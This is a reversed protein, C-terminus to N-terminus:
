GKVSGALMGRIFYRQLSFFVIMPVIMTIFAAAFRLEFDAGRAGVLNVLAVTVPEGTSSLFVSAILFDNWTWLVQFIGFAALAPTSLPIVLRWFITFHDAGDLRASEFIDKPLNAIFNHLLFIALPLGFGTHTLWVTIPEASLGLDPFVRITWDTFPITWSAGRNFLQLLPVFAMQNPLAMLSVVGIFFWSKGKFDMWAFAYAAFAAIAIPVITAPVVIAISNLFNTSLPERLTLGEAGFLVTDYSSLTFDWDRFFEWWGSSLINDTPRFSSVLLGITPISWVIVILWLIWTPVMSLVRQMRQGVPETAISQLKAQREETTTM